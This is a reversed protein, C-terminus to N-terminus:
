AGGVRLSPTTEREISLVKVFNTAATLGSTLTATLTPACQPPMDDVRGQVVDVDVLVPEVIESSPRLKADEEGFRGGRAVRAAAVLGRYM